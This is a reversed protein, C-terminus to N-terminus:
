DMNVGALCEFISKGIARMATVQVDEPLCDQFSLDSNSTVTIEEKTVSNIKMECDSAPRLKKIHLSTGEMKNADVKCSVVSFFCYLFINADWKKTKNEWETECLHLHKPVHMGASFVMWWLRTWCSNLDQNSQYLQVHNGLYNFSTNVPSIGTSDNMVWRHPLSLVGKFQCGLAWFFGVRWTVTENSM